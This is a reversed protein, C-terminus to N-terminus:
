GFVVEGFLALQVIADATDADHEDMLLDMSTYNNEKCYMKIGKIVMDRTLLWKDSIDADCLTLEGGLSIIESALKGTHDPNTTDNIVVSRCWYNIGGEFATVMLDAIQESNLHIEKAEIEFSLTEMNCTKDTTQKVEISQQKDCTPLLLECAKILAISSISM